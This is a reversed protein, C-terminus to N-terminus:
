NLVGFSLLSYTPSDTPQDLFKGTDDASVIVMEREFFSELFKEDSKLTSKKFYEKSTAPLARCQKFLCELV